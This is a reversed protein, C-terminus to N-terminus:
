QGACRLLVPQVVRCGPETAVAASACMVRVLAGGISVRRVGLDALEVPNLGPRTIVVNLPKPAVAIVFSAVDTAAHVGPADLCDAGADAFAILREISPSFASADLLLGETKAVLIVDRESKGIAERAAHIGAVVSRAGYLGSASLGRGEISLGAIGTGIALRVNQAAVGKPESSFGSAFDANVPLDVAHSPAALHDLVDDRSV